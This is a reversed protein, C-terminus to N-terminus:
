TDVVFQIKSNQQAKEVDNDTAFFGFYDSETIDTTIKFLNDCLQRNTLDLCIYSHPLVTAEMYLNQLAKYNDPSIQRALYTIQTLDRPCRFIIIHTANLSITRCTKDFFINQLLIAASINRHHSAVCFIEVIKKGYKDLNSMLDDIVVISNDPIESIEPVGEYIELGPQGKLCVPVFRSSICCWVIKLNHKRAKIQLIQCILHSKGCQSPGAIVIRFPESINM